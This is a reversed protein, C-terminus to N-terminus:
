AALYESEQYLKKAELLREKSPYRRFFLDGDKDRLVLLYRYYGELDGEEKINTWCRVYYGPFVPLVKIFQHNEGSEHRLTGVVSGLSNFAIEQAEKEIWVVCNRRVLKDNASKRYSQYGVALHPTDEYKILRVYPYSDFIYEFDSYKPLDFHFDDPPEPELLEPECEDELAATEEEHSVGEPGISVNPLGLQSADSPLGVCLALAENIEGGEKQLDLVMARFFEGRVRRVDGEKLRLVSGEVARRITEGARRKSVRKLLEKLVEERFRRVPLSRTGPPKGEGVHGEPELLRQVRAQKEPLRSYFSRLLTRMREKTVKGVTRNKGSKEQNEFTEFKETNLVSVIISTVAASQEEQPIARLFETVLEDVCVQVYAAFCM